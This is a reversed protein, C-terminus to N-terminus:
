KKSTTSRRIQNKKSFKLGSTEELTLRQPKEPKKIKYTQRNTMINMLDSFLIFAYIDERNKSMLVTPIKAGCETATKRYWELPKWTEQNKSEIFLPFNKQTTIDGKWTDIAGSLPTRYAKIGYGRLIEAIRLESRRGKEKAKKLIM